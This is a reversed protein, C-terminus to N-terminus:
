PVTFSAAEPQSTVVVTKQFDSGRKFVVLTDEDCTDGNRFNFSSKALIESSYASLESFWV